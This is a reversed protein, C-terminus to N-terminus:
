FVIKIAQIVLQDLPMITLLLPLFPGITVAFLLLIDHTSIPVARMERVVAFSNGLDALSQIDGGALMPVDNVDTKLWKEDFDTVFGSAFNGYKALGKRKSRILQPTFLFLPGLAVLVSLLVYILISLESSFLSEKNYFIRSAIHGSLLASHAFLLPACAMSSAGVFGLGGARDPHLSLLRLKLHSVQLLFWFWILIKMYWRLLIFQFIPVSVFALWYGAMTLHIHGDQSWSYWSATGVAIQQRWIWMGGTFVFVLLAIESVVSDHFRVGADIAAYYKPLEEPIVLHREVFRKMTPRIRLHVVMEALILAPLSVLFRVHTEIDRFFSLTVGEVFHGQVLSLVALPVWSLLIALIAQRNLSSPFQGLLHLRAIRRYLPGGLAMSRNHPEQPPAPTAMHEGHSATACTWESVRFFQKSVFPRSLIEATGKM